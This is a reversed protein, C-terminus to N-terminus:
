HRGGMGYAQANQGLVKAHFNDAVVIDSAIPFM